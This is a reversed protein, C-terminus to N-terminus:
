IQNQNNKNFEKLLEPSNLSTEPKWSFEPLSYRKWKYLITNQWLTKKVIFHFHHSNFYNIFFKLLIFNFLVLQIYITNYGSLKIIVLSLLLKSSM